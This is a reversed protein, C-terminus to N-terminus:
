IRRLTKPTPIVIEDVKDGESIVEKKQFIFIEVM